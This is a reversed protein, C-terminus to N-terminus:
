VITTSPLTMTKTRGRGDPDSYHMIVKLTVNDYPTYNIKDYPLIDGLSFHIEHVTVTTLETSLTADYRQSSYSM